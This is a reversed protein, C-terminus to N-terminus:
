PRRDALHFPLEGREHVSTGLWARRVFSAISNVYPFNGEGEEM